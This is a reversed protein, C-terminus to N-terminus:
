RKEYLEKKTKLAGELDNMFCKAGVYGVNEYVSKQTAADIYFISPFFNEKFDNPYAGDKDIVLTIYDKELKEKVLPDSLTKDIIKDCWRCHKKVIVMVLMKHEKQAREVATAYDSEVGLRKAAELADSATLSYSLLLSLFFLKMITGTKM